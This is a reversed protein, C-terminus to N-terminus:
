APLAPNSRRQASGARNVWREDSWPFAGQRGCQGHGSTGLLIQGALPCPAFHKGDGVGRPYGPMLRAAELRDSASPLSINAGEELEFGTHLWSHCDCGECWKCLEVSLKGLKTLMACYLWFSNSRIASTVLDASFDELFGRGKGCSGGSSGCPHAATPEWVQQPGVRETAVKQSGLNKAFNCSRHGM